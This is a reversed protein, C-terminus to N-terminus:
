FCAELIPHAPLFFCITIRIRGIGDGRINIHKFICRSFQLEFIDLLCIQEIMPENLIDNDKLFGGDVESLDGELFRSFELDALVVM